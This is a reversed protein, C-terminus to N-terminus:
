PGSDLPAILANCAGLRSAILSLGRQTPDIASQSTSVKKTVVFGGAINVASMATAGPLVDM